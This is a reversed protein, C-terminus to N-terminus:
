EVKEEHKCFLCTYKDDIVIMTCRCCPCEKIEKLKLFLYSPLAM